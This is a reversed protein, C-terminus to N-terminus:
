GGRKLADQRCPDDRDPVERSSEDSTYSPAVHGTVRQILLELALMRSAKNNALRGGPTLINGVRSATWEDSLQTIEPHYTITM